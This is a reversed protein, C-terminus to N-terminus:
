WEIVNKDKDKNSGKHATEKVKHVKKAARRTKGFEALKETLYDETRILLEM